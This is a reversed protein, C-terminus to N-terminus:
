VYRAFIKEAAPAEPALTAAVRTNPLSAYPILLTSDDPTTFFLILGCPLPPVDLGSLWRAVDPQFAMNTTLINSYSAMTRM